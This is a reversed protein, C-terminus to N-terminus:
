IAANISATAHMGSVNFTSTLSFANRILFSCSLSLCRSPNDLHQQQISKNNRGKLSNDIKFRLQKKRSNLAEAIQTATTILVTCDKM